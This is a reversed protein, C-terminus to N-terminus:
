AWFNPAYVRLISDILLALMFLMTFRRNHMFTFGSFWIPWAPYEAPPQEPRPKALVAVATVWQKGALLILLLVPTYFKVAILYLIIGYILVMSILDVYRAATQGIVVPLTYVKKARDEEMKDIHKGLNITMVSLGIPVSAWFVNWDFGGTLVYYVGCIMVPGWIAFISLEGLAFYKLPFTYFLLFFAGVGILILITPDFGSQVYVFIGAALALLGSVVFYRIQTAKDHFGHVLPHPGYATRFYNDSDVGRNFDTMDNLINNTGHAIFLGLTVILWTGWSFSEARWAFLGAIVCSFVTVTTVASRTMILWKAIVDLKDWEEKSIKPIVSLAKWWWKLNEM